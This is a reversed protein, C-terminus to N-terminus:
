KVDAPKLQIRVEDIGLSKGLESVTTRLISDIDAAARLKTSIEGVLHEREAREQIQELLRANELALALRDSANNVLAALDDPINQGRYKINLVGLVQDRLLIPVSLLSSDPDPNNESSAPAIVPEGIMLAEEAIKPQEFTTELSNDVFAYNLNTKTNELHSRWTGRTYSRYNEELSAINTKLNQIQTTKDIITALQDAVSQLMEIDEDAFADKQRSQVDLVGIINQGVRLPVTMESQSNPLIFNKNTNMELSLDNAIHADGQALVNSIIGPEHIRIRLNRDLFAQTGEGSAAKLYANEDHEDSLFISAHQYSLQSRILEVSDHLLKELNSQQSIERSIQRTTVLRLRRRDLSNEVENRKLVLAQNDLTLASAKEDLDSISSHLRRVYQAVPATLLISLFVFNVIISIWYLISNFTVLTSGVQIYGTQIFYSLVSIVIATLVVAVPWYNKKELIALILCSVIFFLLGNANIGSQLFSFVGLIFYATSLLFVRLRYPLMRAFTMLFVLAYAVFIISVSVYDKKQFSNYLNLFLLITSLILTGNLLNQLLLEDPSVQKRSIVTQKQPLVKPNSSNTSNM